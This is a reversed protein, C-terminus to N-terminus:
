ILYLTKQVCVNYMICHKFLLKLPQLYENEGILTMGGLENPARLRTGRFYLAM